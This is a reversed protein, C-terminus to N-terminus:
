WSNDPEDLGRYHARFPLEWPNVEEVNKEHSTISGDETYKGINGELQRAMTNVCIKAGILM